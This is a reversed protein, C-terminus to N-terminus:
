EFYGVVDLIVHVTGNGAVTPLIRLDGLGDSNISVVANNARTQGASFAISSTPPAPISAAHVVVHGPGTAQTVTINVAISRAAVPVGCSNAVRSTRANGSALATGDTRTDLLRCPQLSFFSTAVQRERFVLVRSARDAISAQSSDGALAVFDTAAAVSTGQAERPAALNPRLLFSGHLAGARAKFQYAGGGDAIASDDYGKAGVVLQSNDLAFAPYGFSVPFGEAPGTTWPRLIQTRVWIGQQRELISVHEDGSVSDSGRVALRDENMQLAPSLDETPEHPEWTQQHSWNTGQREFFLLRRDALNSFAALINGSIAVTSGFHGHTAAFPSDLIAQLPCSSPSCEFVYALGSNALAGSGRPAGVVVTNGSVAVSLGFDDFLESSALEAIPVWTQGATVDLARRFVYVTSGPLPHTGVVLLPGNTAISYGFSARRGADPARLKQLPQWTGAVRSFVTVAGEDEETGDDGPAGVFLSGDPAAAISAGFGDHLADDAGFSDFEKWDELDDADDELALLLISGSDLLGNRDATPDGAWVRSSGLNLAAGLGETATSPLARGWFTWGGPFPLNAYSFITGRGGDERPYTPAGVIAADNDSSMDVSRGFHAAGNAGVPGFNALVAFFGDALELFTVRGTGQDFGPAGILAHGFRNMDLAEGFLAGAQPITDVVKYSGKWPGGFTSASFVYAAGADAVVGASAGPAGAIARLGDSPTQEVTVATGFRDNAEADAAEACSNFGFSNLASNLDYFCARGADVLSPSDWRPAGVVLVGGGIALAAGYRDGLAGGPALIKQTQVYQDQIPDHVFVYVAGSDNVAGPAGVVVVTASGGVNARVVAAGFEDGEQGDSAVLRQHRVRQSFYVAGTAVGDVVAGPCGFVSDGVASGCQAGATGPDESSVLAAEEVPFQAVAPRAQGCLFAGILLYSAYDIRWNRFAATARKLGILGVGGCGDM